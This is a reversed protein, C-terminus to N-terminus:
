FRSLWNVTVFPTASRALSPGIGYLLGDSTAGASASLEGATWEYRIFGGAHAVDGELNGAAGAELGLSLAPTLRWGLRARGSYSRYLSGWAIDVSTWAHDSLNWWTELAVKGGIGTGHIVSEPDSPTVERDAFSVGAYVKLTVVGIQRHYGLLLDAFSGTGKFEYVVPPGAGVSRPGSYQDAGHGAVLRLRWGDDQIGGFPAVTAGSYLSWVHAYAQGGSWIEFHPQSAEGSALGDDAHAPLTATASVIALGIAAIARWIAAGGCGRVCRM